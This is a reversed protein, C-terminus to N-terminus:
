AGGPVSETPVFLQHTGSPLYRRVPELALTATSGAPVEIHLSWGGRGRRWSVSATGNPTRHSVTAKTVRPDDVPSVEFTKWGPSTSRLGGVRQQIWAAVSGLFYHNRSRADEGWAELLTREGGDFWIGWGPRTRQLLVGLALDDRGADSLVPLLYRVGIAGCDLHGSTRNELDDVLSARVSSVHQAPVMEFALPLVNLVQRYGAGAVSYFGADEDFYADHYAASICLAAGSYHDSRTDGLARLVAETHKLM